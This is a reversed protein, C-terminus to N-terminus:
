IAPFCTTHLCSHSSASDSGLLRLRLLLPLLLPFLLYFFFETSVSWAGGGYWKMSLWPVYSELMTIDLAVVTKSPLDQLWWSVLICSLLGALYAPYIRAIRKFLFHSYYRATPIQTASFDKIHSYTLIFGSLVFFVTVGLAGVSIVTQFPAPLFGLPIRLHIHFVFVYFAALFRLGTLGTLEKKM